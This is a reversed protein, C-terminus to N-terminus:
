GTPIKHASIGSVNRKSTHVARVRYHFMDNLRVQQLHLVLNVVTVTFGKAISSQLRPDTICVVKAVSEMCFINMCNCPASCARVCINFNEIIYCFIM